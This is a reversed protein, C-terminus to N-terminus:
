RAAIASSGATAGLSCQTTSNLLRDRTSRHTLTKLCTERLSRPALITPTLKFQEVKTAMLALRRDFLKVSTLAHLAQRLLARPASAPPSSASGWRDWRLSLRRGQAALPGGLCPSRVSTPPPLHPVSRWFNARGRRRAPRRGQAALRDGLCPLRVGQIPHLLRHPPNGGRVSFLGGLHLPWLAARDLRGQGLLDELSPQACTSKSTVFINNAWAKTHNLFLKLYSDLELDDPDLNLWIDGVMSYCSPQAM